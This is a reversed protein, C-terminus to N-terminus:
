RSTLRKYGLLPTQVLNSRTRAKRRRSRPMPENTLSSHDIHRSVVLLLGLPFGDYGFGGVARQEIEGVGGDLPEDLEGLLAAVDRLVLQVRNQGGLLDGGVLDLVHVRHEAFHADVDDVLLVCSSASLLGVFRAVFLFLLDAALDDLGGRVVATAVREDSGASRM